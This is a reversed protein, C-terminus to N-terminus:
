LREKQCHLLYSVGHGNGTLVGLPVGTGEGFCKGSLGSVGLLGNVGLCGIRWQFDILEQSETSLSESEVM